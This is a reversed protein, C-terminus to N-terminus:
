LEFTELEETTEHPMDSLRRLSLVDHLRAALGLPTASDLFSRLPLTVDYRQYIAERLKIRGLSDLDSSMWSTEPTIQIGLLADCMHALDDAITQQAATRPQNLIEGIEAADLATLHELTARGTGASQGDPQTAESIRIKDLAVLKIGRLVAVKLGRAIETVTINAQVAGGAFSLDDAIVQFGGHTQSLNLHIESISVPAYLANPTGEGLDLARAAIVHMASDLLTALSLFSDDSVSATLTATSHQKGHDPPTLRQFLPGYFAGLKDLKRYFEQCAEGADQVGDALISPPIDSPEPERRVRAIVDSMLAQNFVIQAEDGPVPQAEPARANQLETLDLPAQLEFDRLTLRKQGATASQTALHAVYAMGPVVARGQMMHEQALRLYKDDLTGGSAMAGRAMGSGAPGLGLTVRNFATVPLSVAGAFRPKTLPAFNVDLQANFRAIAARHLDECTQIHLADIPAIDASAEFADGEWWSPDRMIEFLSQGSRADLVDYAMRSWEADAIVRAIGTVDKQEMAKKLAASCATTFAGALEVACRAAQRDSVSLAAPAGLVSTVLAFCLDSDDPQQGAGAGGCLAPTVELVYAKQEAAPLRMDRVLGGASQSWLSGARCPATSRACILASALERPGAEGTELAREAQEMLQTLAQQDRASFPLPVSQPEPEEEQPANVALTPVAQVIAHALTGGYGFASLGAAKLRAPQQGEHKADSVDKAVCPWPRCEEAMHLHATKWDFQDTLAGMQPVPSLLGRRMDSILRILGVLGAVAETHGLNAKHAGLYLDASGYAETIAELELVDGAPTGTGHTEIVGVDEPALNAESLAARMVRAQASGNPQTLDSRAGDQGLAIAALRALPAHPSHSEPMLIVAAAGDARCFGDASAAFPRIHGSKSLLGAASHALNIDPELIANAGAVIAMEIHGLRLADAAQSLAVLGSSCATDVTIAPGSTGLLHAVRGAALAPQTGTVAYKSNRAMPEASVRRAYDTTSLAVYIGVSRDRLSDPAIRADELARWVVELVMRQAPCLLRAEEVSLNFLDLDVGLIDQVAGIHSDIMAPYEDPNWRDPPLAGVFVEKRDLAATLAKPTEIGGPLRCAMGFIGLTMDNSMLHAVRTM